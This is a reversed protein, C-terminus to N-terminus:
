HVQKVEHWDPHEFYTGYNELAHVVKEVGRHRVKNSKWGSMTDAGTLLETIVLHLMADADKDLKCNQVM